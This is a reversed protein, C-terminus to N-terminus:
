NNMFFVDCRYSFSFSILFIIFSLFCNDNGIAWDTLADSCFETTMPEFGVRVLKRYSSWIIRWHHIDNTDICEAVSM